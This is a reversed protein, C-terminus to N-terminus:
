FDVESTGARLRRNAEIRLARAEPGNVGKVAQLIRRFDWEQQAAALMKRVYPVYKPDRTLAIAALVPTELEIAQGQVGNKELLLDLGSTDGYQALLLSYAALDEV